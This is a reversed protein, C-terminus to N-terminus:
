AASGPLGLKGLLDLLTEKPSGEKEDGKRLVYSAAKVMARHHCAGCQGCPIPGCPRPLTVSSVPEIDM